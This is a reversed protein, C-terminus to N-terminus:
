EDGILQARAPVGTEVRCQQILLLQGPLHQLYAKRGQLEEARPREDGGASLHRTARCEGRQRWSNNQEDNKQLLPPKNNPRPSFLKGTTLKAARASALM